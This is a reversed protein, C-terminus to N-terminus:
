ESGFTIIHNISEEFSRRFDEPLEEKLDIQNLCIECKDTMILNAWGGSEAIALLTASRPYGLEEFIQCPSIIKVTTRKDEDIKVINLSM